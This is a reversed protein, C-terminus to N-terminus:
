QAVAPIEGTGASEQAIIDLFHRCALSLGEQMHVLWMATRAQPDSLPRYILQEAQLSCLSQAVVAIGVGAAALGFLTTVERVSQTVRPEIGVGRLLGILDPTFGSTREVAYVVMPEGNLDRLAVEEQNALRHDPRMAVFLREEVLPSIKFQDPLDPRNRSRMIGVDLTHGSLGQVQETPITESLTLRVEPTRQRFEHIAGAIRPVFPAAANFGISLCGLEGRAARRAVSVAQEARALTARAEDLFLRGATTLHVNRSTREFLRVGLEDELAKIQQSLPPQSIGLKRAARGFHLDEAVGVFYRLHRLDM